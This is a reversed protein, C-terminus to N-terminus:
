ETSYNSRASDSFSPLSVSASLSSCLKVRMNETIYRLFINSFAVDCRDSDVRQCINESLRFCNSVLGSCKANSFMWPLFSHLYVFLVSIQRLSFPPLPTPLPTFQRGSYNLLRNILKLINFGAAQFSLKAWFYRQLILTVTSHIM